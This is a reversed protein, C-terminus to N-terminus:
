ACFLNCILLQPAVSSRYKAVIQILLSFFFFLIDTLFREFSSRPKPHRERKGRFSDVWRGCMGADRRESLGLASCGHIAKQLLGLWGRAQADRRSRGRSVQSGAGQTCLYPRCPAARM